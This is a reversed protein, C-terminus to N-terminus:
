TDAGFYIGFIRIIKRDKKLNIQLIWRRIDRLKGKRRKAQEKKLEIQKVMTLYSFMTTNFYTIANNTTIVEKEKLGMNKLKEQFGKMFNANKDIYIDSNYKKSDQYAKIAVKYDDDYQHYKQWILVDRKIGVIKRKHAHVFCKRYIDEYAQEFDHIGALISVHKQILGKKRIQDVIFTEPRIKNKSEEIFNLAQEFSNTRYLRQGVARPSIIYKDISVANIEFVNDDCTEAYGIIEQIFGSRILVDADLCLTWKRNEKLGLTFVEKLTKSFPVRGVIFINKESIQQKALEYCIKETREGISRIIVTVNKNLDNKALEDM